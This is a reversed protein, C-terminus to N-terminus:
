ETHLLPASCLKFKGLLSCDRPSTAQGQWGLCPVHFAAGVKQWSVGTSHAKSNGPATPLPLISTTHKPKLTNIYASILSYM